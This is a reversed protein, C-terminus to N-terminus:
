RAKKPIFGDETIAQFQESNIEIKGSPRLDTVCVASLGILAELSITKLLIDM